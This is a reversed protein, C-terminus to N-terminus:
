NKKRRKKGEKGGMLYIHLPISTLFYQRFVCRWTKARNGGGQGRVPALKFGRLHKGLRCKLLSYISLCTRELAGFRRYEKAPKNPKPKNLAHM